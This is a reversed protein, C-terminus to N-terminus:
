VKISKKLNFRTLISAFRAGAAGGVMLDAVQCGGFVRGLVWDPQGVQM